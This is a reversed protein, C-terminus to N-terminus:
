HCLTKGVSVGIAFYFGLAILSLEICLALMARKLSRCTKDVREALLDLDTM